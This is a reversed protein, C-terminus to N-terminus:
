TSYSIEQTMIWFCVSSYDQLPSSLNRRITQQSANGRKREYTNRTDTKWKAENGAFETQAKKDDAFGWEM